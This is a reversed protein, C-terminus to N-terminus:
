QLYRLSITMLVEEFVERCNDNDRIDTDLVVDGHRDEIYMREVIEQLFSNM